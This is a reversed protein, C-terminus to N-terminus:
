SPLSRTCARTCSSSWIFSVPAARTVALDSLLLCVYHSQCTICTVAWFWARREFWSSSPIWVLVTANRWWLCCFIYEKVRSRVKGIRRHKYVALM